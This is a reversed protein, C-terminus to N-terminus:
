DEQNQSRRLIDSYYSDLTLKLYVTGTINKFIVHRKDYFGNEIDEIYSAVESGRQLLVTALNEDSSEVKAHISSHNLSVLQRDDLLLYRVHHRSNVM